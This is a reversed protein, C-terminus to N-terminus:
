LWQLAPVLDFGLPKMRDIFHLDLPLVLVDLLKDGALLLPDSLDFSSL